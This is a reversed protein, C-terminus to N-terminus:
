VNYIKQQILHKFRLIYESVSNIYMTIKAYSKFDVNIFIISFTSHFFPVFTNHILNIEEKKNVNGQNQILM